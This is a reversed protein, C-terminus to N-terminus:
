NKRDYLVLTLALVGAGLAILCLITEMNGGLLIGKLIGHLDRNPEPM